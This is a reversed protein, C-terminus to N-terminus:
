DKIEEQYKPGIRNKAKPYKKKLTEYNVFEDYSHCTEGKSTAVYCDNYKQYQRTCCSLISLIILSTKVKRSMQKNTFM